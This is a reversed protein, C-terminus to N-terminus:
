RSIRPESRAHCARAHDHHVDGTAISQFRAIGNRDARRAALGSPDVPYAVARSRSAASEGPVHFPLLVFSGGVCVFEPAGTSRHFSSDGRWDLCRTAGASEPGQYPVENMVLRVGEKEGPIVFLELIQPVGRSAQVLSYTTVFRMVQPEGQFFLMPQVNGDNGRHIATVPVLGAFEQEMIREVGAVRRNQMLKHNTKEMANLGIRLTMMMGVSLLSVLTIAIMIEVLTMGAELSRKM